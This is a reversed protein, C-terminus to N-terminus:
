GDRGERPVSGRAAEDNLYYDHRDAAVEGANTAAAEAMEVLLSGAGARGARVPTTALVDRIKIEVHDGPAIESVNTPIAFENDHTLRAYLHNWRGRAAKRLSLRLLHNNQRKALGLRQQSEAPIAILRGKQVIAEFRDLTQSLTPDSM